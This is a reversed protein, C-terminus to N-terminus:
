GSSQALPRFGVRMWKSNLAAGLFCSIFRLGDLLLNAFLPSCFVASFDVVVFLFLDGPTVTAGRNGAIDSSSPEAHGWCLTIMARMIGLQSCPIHASSCCLRPIYTVQPIWDPQPTVSCVPRAQGWVTRRYVTLHLGVSGNILKPRSRQLVQIYSSSVFSIRGHRNVM